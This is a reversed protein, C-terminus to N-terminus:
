GVQLLEFRAGGHYVLLLTGARAFERFLYAVVDREAPWPYVYVLDFDLMSFGLDAALLSRDVRRQHSGPPLYSGEHFCVDLRHDAALRRSAEVLQPAQEIGCADFGAMRALCAVIGFGSGWECFRREGPLWREAVTALAAHALVPNTSVLSPIRGGRPVFTQARRRGDDILAEIAESRLRPTADFASLRELGPFHESQM